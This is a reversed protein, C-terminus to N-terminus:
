HDNEKTHDNSSAARFNGTELYLQIQSQASPPLQNFERMVSENKESKSMM